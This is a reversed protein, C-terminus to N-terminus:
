LSLDKLLLTVFYNSDELGLTTWHTYSNPSTSLAKLHVYGKNSMTLVLSHNYALNIAFSFVNQYIKSHAREREDGTGYIRLSRNAVEKQSTVQIAQGEVFHGSSSEGLLM